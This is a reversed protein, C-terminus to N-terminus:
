FEKGLEPHYGNYFYGNLSKPRYGYMDKHWDSYTQFADMDIEEWRRGEIYKHYFADFDAQNAKRYRDDQISTILCYYTYAEDWGDSGMIMELNHNAENYRDNLEKDTMAELEAKTYMKM